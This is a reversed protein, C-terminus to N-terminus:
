AFWYSPNTILSLQDCPVCNNTNQIQVCLSWLDALLVHNGGINQVLEGTVEYLNM